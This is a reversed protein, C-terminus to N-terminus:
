RRKGDARSLPGFEGDLGISPGKVRNKTPTGDSGMTVQSQRRSHGSRISTAGLTDPTPPVVGVGPASPFRSREPTAKNNANGLASERMDDEFSRKEPLPPADGADAARPRPPTESTEGLGPSGSLFITQHPNLLANEFDDKSLRSRGSSFSPRPIPSPARQGSIPIPQAALM